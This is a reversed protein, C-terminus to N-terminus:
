CLSRVCRRPYLGALRAFWSLPRQSWLSSAAVAGRSPLPAHLLYSLSASQRRKKMLPVAGGM